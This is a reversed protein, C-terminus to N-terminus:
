RIFSTSRIANVRTLWKEVQLGTGADILLTGQADYSGRGLVVREDPQFCVGLLIRFGDPIPPPLPRPVSQPRVPLPAANPEGSTVNAASRPGRSYASRITKRVEAEGLGDALARALLPPEAQAQTYGADRFQCAAALLADNRNATVGNALCDRTSPPLDSYLDDSQETGTTYNPV